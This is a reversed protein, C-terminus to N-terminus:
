YMCLDYMSAYVCVQALLKNVMGRSTGVVVGSKEEAVKYKGGFIQWADVMKGSDEIKRALEESIQRMADMGRANVGIPYSEEPVHVIHTRGEYVVSRIGQKALLLAMCIGVPGGGIIHYAPNNFGQQQSQQQPPQQGVFGRPLNAGTDLTGTELWAHTPGPMPMHMPMPVHMPVQMPMHMPVPQQAHSYMGTHIYVHKSTLQPVHMPANIPMHMPVPQQAHSYM